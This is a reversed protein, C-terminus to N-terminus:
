PRSRGGGRKMRERIADALEGARQSGILIRKGDMLELQVGRDGSVNYAMGGRRMRVGWGGYEAIIALPIALLLYGIPKERLYALFGRLIGKM